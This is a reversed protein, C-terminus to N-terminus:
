GTTSALPLPARDMRIEKFLSGKSKIGGNPILGPGLAVKLSAEGLVRHTTAGVAAQRADAARLLSGSKRRQLSAQQEFPRGLHGWTKKDYPNFNDNPRPEGWPIGKGLKEWEERGPRDGFGSKELMKLHARVKDYGSPPVNHPGSYGNHNFIGERFKGEKWAPLFTPNIPDSKGWLRGPAHPPDNGAIVHAAPPLKTLAELRKKIPEFYATGPTGFAYRGIQGSRLYKMAGGVGQNHAYGMIELKETQSLAQFKPARM